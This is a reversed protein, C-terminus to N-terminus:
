YMTNAFTIQLNCSVIAKPVFERIWISFNSIIICFNSAHIHIACNILAMAIFCVWHVFSMREIIFLYV